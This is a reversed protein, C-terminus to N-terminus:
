AAAAREAAIEEFSQGDGQLVAPEGVWEQFRRVIV